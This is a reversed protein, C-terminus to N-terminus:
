LGAAMLAVRGFTSMKPSLASRVGSVLRWGSVTTPGPPGGHPITAATDTRRWETSSWASGRATRGPGGRPSCVSRQHGGGRHEPQADASLRPNGHPFPCPRAPPGAPPPHILFPGPADSEFRSTVDIPGPGHALLRGSTLDYAPAWYDRATDGDLRLDSGDLLTTVITWRDNRRATFALRGDHTFAPSLAAEGETSIPQPASGGVDMRYIRPEGDRQSYFVVARGDPAWAPSGDWGEHWTLRRVGTGDSQMVYLESAEYTAPPAAGSVTVVSADRSSSFLIRTGDPSFAPNYDGAEHRTLNTAESAAASDEPVFPIVFIDPNGSRTSVFILTRGDPSFAAADEMADSEILPRAAGNDRLDLVYLDPNGTRESTFVVWRGDPSIVGNYDLGPDTTLRRPTSGPREFLYLDWNPPQLSSYIVTEQVPETDQTGSVRGTVVFVAVLALLGAATSTTSTVTRM